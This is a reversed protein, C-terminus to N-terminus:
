CAPRGRLCCNAARNAGDAPFTLRVRTGKGPASTVRLRGGLAAVREKVEFLGLSSISRPASPAFGVGRDSVDLFIGERGNRGIRVRAAKVRAHKHVNFLLERLSQFICVRLEEDAPEAELQMHIEMCLRQKMEEALWHVAAGLGAKCLAHPRMEVAISRTLEIARDLIDDVAAATERRGRVSGGSPGDLARLAYRAGALRQQLDEHLIQALQQRESQQVRQLRHTLAGLQATRARVQRELTRHSARLAAELRKRASIDRIIAWMAAPRGRTDCMLCTRLEIPFVTGDKRRYEKEYVDSYGRALIQKRVIDAEMAHWRAPTLDVYTKRRLEPESYGLMDLYARNFEIISGAMDVSVFADTMTEYLLRYKADDSRRRVVRIAAPSRRSV